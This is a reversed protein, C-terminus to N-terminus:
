ERLGEHTDADSRIMAPGFHFLIKHGKKLPGPVLTAIKARRREFRGVIIGIEHQRESAGHGFFVDLSSDGDAAAAHPRAHRRVLNAANPRCQDMLNKGGPLSHFVVIHVDKTEAPPRQSRRQGPLEDLCEECGTEAARFSM